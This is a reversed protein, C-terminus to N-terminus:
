RRIDRLSLSAPAGFTRRFDHAFHAQDAFGAAHAAGTFNNGDIVAGIARRMRLWARYRRFPVGVADTFLHQFRSASLGVSAALAGASPTAEPEALLRRIARAIRGDIRPEAQRGAFALLDALAPGAASAGDRHEFLDRLPTTEGAAGLLAGAIERTGHLLPTLAEVGFRDPELYLVGLPDGGLDLEHVCGAPIMATRCSTWDQTGVRLRFNGYLGALFVPAGHQHGANYRLPGAFFTTAGAVHWLPRLPGDDAAREYM